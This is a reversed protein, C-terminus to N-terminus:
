RIPRRTWMGWMAAEFHRAFRSADFLPSNLVQQRLGRRLGSLAALDAGFRAAKAVYADSGRAIWDPLGANRMITEGAHSLFRDGRMTLVPVGMWLAECSTTGGPYPFPDLAIDIRHYARLYAERSSPPELLLRDPALGYSAFRARFRDCAMADDLQPAKLMLRSGPVAQLVRIWVALVADNIKTLNNFCGFTIGASSWAPLGSVPVDFPPPTFCYYIEPLSWITETFHHAEDAPAVQPDGLFYDMEAVGTTAFYGLWSAQVPAPRRGFMALRNYATHGSLDLLVQVKHSRILNGAAQDGLAHIPAWGQCSSRIRATLEDERHHSPFAVFTIRAPDVARLVGELFYGVPHDRLDGSVLGVRLAQDPPHEGWGTLVEGAGRSIAVGFQRALERLTEPPQRVIYNQTFLRGSSAASYDPKIEVARAYHAVAEDLRGQDRLANGLNNHAEAFDPALDIARRYCAVADDLRRRDFQVNGLGNHAGSHDAASALVQCFCTAAEDFRRQERRVNGLNILAELYDSKLDIATCFCAAAEDFRGQRSLVTGLNNHAQRLDPKLQLARGCSAAAEEFKGQEMLATGLNNHIEASGPALALADRFCQSAEALQVQQMRANGLNFHPAAFDAKHRLATQFAAVAEALRGQDRLVNGLNNHAQAFDPRREIARRYCALAEDLRGAQQHQLARAFIEQAAQLGPQTGSKGNTPHARRQQRNM